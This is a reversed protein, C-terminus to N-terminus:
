PTAGRADVRHKLKSLMAAAYAAYPGIWREHIAHVPLADLHNWRERGRKEAVVLGAEELVRLHQMVTCRDIEPILDCLMGTTRSEAKLLDLIRRRVRHGLAKFILDYADDNSM